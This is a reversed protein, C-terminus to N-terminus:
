RSSRRGWVILRTSDDATDDDDIYDEIYSTRHEPNRVVSTWTPMEEQLHGLFEPLYNFDDPLLSKDISSLAKLSSICEMGTHYASTYDGNRAQPSIAYHDRLYLITELFDLAGEEEEKIHRPLRLRHTGLRLTQRFRNEVTGLIRLLIDRMGIQELMEILDFTNQSFDTIPTSESSTLAQLEATTSIIHHITTPNTNISAHTPISFVRSGITLTARSITHILEEAKVHIYQIDIRELESPSLGFRLTPENKDDVTGRLFHKPAKLKILAKQMLSRKRM